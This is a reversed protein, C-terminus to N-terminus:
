VQKIELWLSGPHYLSCEITQLFDRHDRHARTQCWRGVKGTNHLLIPRLQQRYYCLLQCKAIMPCRNFIWKQPCIKTQYLQCFTSDLSPFIIPYFKSLIIWIKLENNITLLLFYTLKMFYYYYYNRQSTNM